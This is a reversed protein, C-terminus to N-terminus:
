WHKHTQENNKTKCDNLLESLEIQTGMPKPKKPEGKVPEPLGDLNIKLYNARNGTEKCEFSQPLEKIAKSKILYRFSASLNSSDTGMKAAIMKRSAPQIVELAELIQRQQKTFQNDLKKQVFSEKSTDRINDGSM